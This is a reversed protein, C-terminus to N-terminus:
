RSRRHGGMAVARRPPSDVTAALGALLAAVLLAVGISFIAVVGVVTLVISAGMLLGRRLRGPSRPVAIIIAATTAAFVILLWTPAGQLATMISEPQQGQQDLLMVYAIFSTVVAAAALIALVRGSRVSRRM